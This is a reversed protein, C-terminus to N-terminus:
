PRGLAREATELIAVSPAADEILEELNKRTAPVRVVRSVDARRFFETLSISFSDGILLLSPREPIGSRDAPRPAPKGALPAQLVDERLGPMNLMLALDGTRTAPVLGPLANPNMSIGANALIQAAAISAGKDNWHTDTKHYVRDGNAKAALLGPRLDVVSVGSERAARAAQDYVSCPGVRRMWAPLYEPYISQKDPAIAFVFKGGRTEAAARLAALRSALARIREGSLCELGRHKPISEDGSFFLWGDRGVIVENVVAGEVFRYKLAPVFALYRKLGFNDQIYKDMTRPYALAASADRPFGPNPALPHKEVAETSKGIDLIDALLPLSLYVSFTIAIWVSATDRM